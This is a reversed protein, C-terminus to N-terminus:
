DCLRRGGGYNHGSFHGAVCSGVRGAKRTRVESEPCSPTRTLQTTQDSNLRDQALVRRDEDPWGEPESARRPGGPPRQGPAGTQFQM